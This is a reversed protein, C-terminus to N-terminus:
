CSAARARWRTRGSDEGGGRRGQAPLRPDQGELAPLRRHHQRPEARRLHHPGRAHPDGLGHRRQGRLGVPVGRLSGREQLGRHAGRTAHAPTMTGSITRVAGRASATDQPRRRAGGRATQSAHDAGPLQQVRPQDGGQRRLAIRRRKGIGPHAPAPLHGGRAVTGASRSSLVLPNSM